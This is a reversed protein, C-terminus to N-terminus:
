SLEGKRAIALITMTRPRRGPLQRLLTLCWRRLLHPLRYQSLVLIEPTVPIIGRLDLVELGSEELLNRLPRPTLNVVELGTRELLRRLSTPTFGGQHGRDIWHHFTLGAEEHEPHRTADPVSLVLTNSAVRALEVLAVEPDPLHELVEFCSVTHFTGDGFPLSPLRALTNGLGHWRALSTPPLIDVGFAELGADVLRRVYLDGACGVDLAPSEAVALIAELRDQNVETGWRFEQRSSQLAARATHRDTTRTLTM